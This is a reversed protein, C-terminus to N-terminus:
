PKSQRQDAASDTLVGHQRAEEIAEIATARELWRQELMAHASKKAELKGHSPDARACVPGGHM